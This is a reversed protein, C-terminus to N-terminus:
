LEKYNPTETSRELNWLFGKALLQMREQLHPNEKYLKLAQNQAMQAQPWEKGSDDAFHYSARMGLEYFENMTQNNEILEQIEQINM